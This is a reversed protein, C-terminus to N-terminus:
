IEDPVDQLLALFDKLENSTKPYVEVIKNLNGDSAANDCQRILTRFDKALSKAESAKTPDLIGSILLDMDYYENALQKLFLKIALVEKEDMQDGRNQVSKALDDWDKQYKVIKSYALAGSPLDGDGVDALTVLPHLVLSIGVCTSTIKRTLKISTLRMAWAISILSALCLWSLIPM